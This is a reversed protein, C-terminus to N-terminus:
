YGQTKNQTFAHRFFVIELMKGHSKRWEELLAQQYGDMNRTCPGNITM